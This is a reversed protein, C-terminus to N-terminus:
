MAVDPALKMWCRNTSARKQLIQTSAHQRDNAGPAELGLLLLASVTFGILRGLFKM